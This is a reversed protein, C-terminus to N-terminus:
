SELPQADNLLRTLRQMNYILSLRCQEPTAAFDRGFHEQNIAQVAGIEEAKTNDDLPLGRLKACTPLLRGLANATMMAPHDGILRDLLEALQPPLQSNNENDFM